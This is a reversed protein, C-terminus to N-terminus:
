GNLCAKIYDHMQKIVKQYTYQTINFKVLTEKVYHSGTQSRNYIEMKEELSLDEIKNRQTHKGM